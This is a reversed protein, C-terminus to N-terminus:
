RVRRCYQDTSSEGVCGLDFGGREKHRITKGEVPGRGEEKCPSVEFADKLNRGITDGQPAREISKRSINKESPNLLRVTREHFIDPKKIITNCSKKVGRLLITKKERVQNM